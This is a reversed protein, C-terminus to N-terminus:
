DTIQTLLATGKLIWYRQQQNSPLLVSVIFNTSHGTTSVAGARISTKYLPAEYRIGSYEIESKLLIHMAPLPPNMEGPYSDVLVMNENDWRGGDLFLGHVIVGDKPEVIDGYAEPVEFQGNAMHAAYIDDQNVVAKLVLFDFKLEDVPHSHKRAYTQLVGTLFGQPSFFGSLWYSPPPGAMLWVKIFDLRLQLDRIWSGLSKLSPYAIGGWMKPVQNKLCSKFVEELADSMVVLGKIAKQLNDLSARVKILLTNYRNVEQLLVTSLSPLRGNRDPQLLSPLCEDANITKILKGLITETIEYVIDDSSKETSGPSERPQIDLLTMMMAQTEKVQFAIDANEHIGFIQPEEIIPLSDIFSRYKELTLCNRSEPCYYVVSESYLYGDELASSMFFGRLITKLCRLDLYDTVRGSYTIEGIIYELADWPIKDDVCFMKMTNLTCERDSDNFEYPINWGLPGFKKREQIVAHFFCMGFVMKRWQPGLPHDEFIDTTLQLFAQKLNARLGKPSENTVKISNQLISIPFAKSPMASLYLRFDPHVKEPSESLKQIIKEMSHMWSTALHCNQLFVWEGKVTGLSIMKEALLGQEQGLSISQMKDKYGMESAFHQFAEFPDSESSLIFMLPILNSTDQYLKQLTIQPREVFAQGLKGKVYSTIASVLKEEKLAKLLMLKEFDDLQVNWDIQSSKHNTVHINIVQDFDEIRICIKLVSDLVIGEFSDFKAALFNVSLWMADSLTAIDPKKPVTMGVSVPGRLLFNWQLENIIGAEKYIRACLM